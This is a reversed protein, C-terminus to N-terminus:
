SILPIDDSPIISRFLSSSSLYLTPTPRQHDRPSVTGLHSRAHLVTHKYIRSFSFLDCVCTCVCACAFHDFLRTSERVKWFISHNLHGGGNFKIAAQLQVVATVDGKAEAEALKEMSANLNNIYAQSASRFLYLLPRSAHAGPAPTPFIAEAIKVITPAVVRMVFRYQM